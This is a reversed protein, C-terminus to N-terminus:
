AEQKTRRRAVAGMIGLGALLLAWSEPEPVAAVAGVTIGHWYEQQPTNWSISTYTGQFQIVGNGEQGILTNGSTTFSTSGGGWQNGGQSLLTFPANFRYEVPWGGQGVSVLAIVPNLVAQSFTITYQGGNSFQILDPLSPANVATNYTTPYGAFFNYGQSLGMDSGSFGVNVTQSGFNLTGSYQTSWDTWSVAQQALASGATCALAVAAVLHKMKNM